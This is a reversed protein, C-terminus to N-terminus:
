TSKIFKENKRSKASQIEKLTQKAAVDAVDFPTAPPKQATLPAVGQQRQQAVNRVATSASSPPSAPPGKLLKKSLSSIERAVQKAEDTKLELTVKKGNILASAELTSNKETIELREIKNMQKDTHHMFLNYINVILKRESVDVSNLSIHKRVPKGNPFKGTGGLTYGASTKSLAISSVEM